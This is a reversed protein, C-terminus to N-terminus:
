VLEIKLTKLRSKIIHFHEKDETYLTAGIYLATFALQVDNVFGAHSLLSHYRPPLDAFFRGLSIYHNSNLSVVRDASLYPKQLKNILRQGQKTKAGAWLEMLVICSLYKVTGPQMLLEAHARSRIWSIYINTDFLVKM